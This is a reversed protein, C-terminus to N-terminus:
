KMKKKAAIKKWGVIENVIYCRHPAAVANWEYFDDVDDLMAYISDRVHVMM